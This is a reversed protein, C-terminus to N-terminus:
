DEEGEILKKFTDQGEPSEAWEDSEEKSADFDGNIVRRRLAMIETAKEPYRTSIVALDRVLNIAPTPHPSLYDHYMGKEAEAAMEDLGLGKLEAALLQYTKM